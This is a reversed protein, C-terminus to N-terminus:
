LAIFDPLHHFSHRFIWPPCVWRQESASQARSWPPCGNEKFIMIWLKKFYAPNLQATRTMAKVPPHAEIRGGAPTLGM